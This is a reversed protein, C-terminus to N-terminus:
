KKNTWYFGFILMWFLLAMIDILIELRRVDHQIIDLLRKVAKAGGVVALWTGRKVRARLRRWRTLSHGHAYRRLLEDRTARDLEPALASKTETHAM